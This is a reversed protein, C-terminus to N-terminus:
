FCNSSMIRKLRVNTVLLEWTGVPRHQWHGWMAFWRNRVHAVALCRGVAQVEPGRREHLSLSLLHYGPQFVEIRVCSTRGLLMECRLVRQPSM